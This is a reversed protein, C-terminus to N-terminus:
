SICHPIAMEEENVIFVTFFYNNNAIIQSSESHFNQEFM